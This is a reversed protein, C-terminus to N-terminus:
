LDAHEMFKIDRETIEYHVQNWDFNHETPVVPPKYKLYFPAATINEM